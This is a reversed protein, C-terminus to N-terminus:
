LSLGELKQLIRTKSSIIAIFCSILVMMDTKNNENEGQCVPGGLFLATSTTLRKRTSWVPVNCLPASSVSWTVKHWRIKWHRSSKKHAYFKAGNWSWIKLNDGAVRLKLATTGVGNPQFIVPSSGNSTTALSWARCSHALPDRGNSGPIGLIGLNRNVPSKMRAPAPIYNSDSPNPGRWNTIQVYLIDILNMYVVWMGFSFDFGQKILNTKCHPRQPGFAPLFRLRLTPTAPPLILYSYDEFYIYICISHM